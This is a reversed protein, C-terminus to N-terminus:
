TWHTPISLIRQQVSKKPAVRLACDATALLKRWISKQAPFRTGFSPAAAELYGPLAHGRLSASLTKNLTLLKCNGLPEFSKLIWLKRTYNWAIHLLTKGWGFCCTTWYIRSVRTADRLWSSSKWFCTWGDEWCKASVSNTHIHQLQKSCIVREVKLQM